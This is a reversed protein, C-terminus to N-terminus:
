DTAQPFGLRGLGPLKLAPRMVDLGLVLGFLNIEFGEVRALSLGIAGGLSLQYGTGSVTPGIISGNTLYDKGVATAPLHLRMDPVERGIYAVFTNSNPGPWTRYEGSYPYAAAAREIEPILRAARAGRIDLLIRPKRGFWHADVVFADTSVEGGWWGIVDYRTFKPAGERKVAIWTHSAVAGRRGFTRASYVQVIAERATDPDPAIGASSRDATRWDNHRAGLLAAEVMVPTVTLAVLGITLFRIPRAKM